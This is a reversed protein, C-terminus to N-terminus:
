QTNLLKISLNAPHSEFAFCGNKNIPLNPYLWRIKAAIAVIGTIRIGIKVVSNLSASSRLISM